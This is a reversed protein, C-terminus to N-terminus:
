IMGVRKLEAKQIDTLDSFYEGDQRVGNQYVEAMAWVKGLGGEPLTQMGSVYRPFVRFKVGDIEAQYTSYLKILPYLTSVKESQEDSPQVVFTEIEEDKPFKFKSKAM